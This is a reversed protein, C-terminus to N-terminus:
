KFKSVEISVKDDDVSLPNSTSGNARHSQGITPTTVASHNTNAGAQTSAARSAIGSISRPARLAPPAVGRGAGAGVGAPSAIRSPAKLGSLGKRVGSTVTATTSTKEPRSSSTTNTTPQHSSNNTRPDDATGSGHVLFHGARRLGSGSSGSGTKVSPTTQRQIKSKTTGSTAIESVALPSPSQSSHPSVPTTIPATAPPAPLQSVSTPQHPAGAAKLSGIGRCSTSIPLKPTPMASSICEQLLSTEVGVSEISLLSSFSSNEEESASVRKGASKVEETEQEPQRELPYLDM